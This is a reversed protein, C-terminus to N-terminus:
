LGPCGGLRAHNGFVMACYRAPTNQAPTRKRNIPDEICITKCPAQPGGSAVEQGLPADYYSPASVADHMALNTYVAFPTSADCKCVAHHIEVRPLALLCGTADGSHIEVHIPLAFLTNSTKIAHINGSNSRLGGPTKNSWQNDDRRKQFCKPADVQGQEGQNLRSLRPYM